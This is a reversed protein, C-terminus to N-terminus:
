TYGKRQGKIGRRHPNRWLCSSCVLKCYFQIFSYVLRTYTWRCSIKL